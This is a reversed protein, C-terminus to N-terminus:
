NANRLDSGKVLLELREVRLAVEKELVVLLPLLYRLQAARKYLFARQFILGIVFTPLYTPNGVDTDYKQLDVVGIM